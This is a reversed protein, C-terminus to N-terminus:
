AAAHADKVAKIDIKQMQRMAAMAAQAKAPDPDGLLGPLEQPIVQWAVGFKDHLWGCPGPEGGGDDLLLAWLRDVEEQSECELYISAYDSPPFGPGGNLLTFRQGGLEFAAGFATGDPGRQVSTLTSDPVVSTYFEAAEAVRGDFWLFTTVSSM